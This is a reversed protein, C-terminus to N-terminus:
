MKLVVFWLLFSIFEYKTNTQESSINKCMNSKEDYQLIKCGLSSKCIKNETIQHKMQHDHVEKTLKPEHPQQQNQDSGQVIFLLLLIGLSKYYYKYVAVEL